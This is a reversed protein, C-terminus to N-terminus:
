CNRLVDAFEKPYNNSVLQADIVTKARPKKYFNCLESKFINWHEDGLIGAQNSVFQESYLSVVKTVFLHELLKIKPLGYVTAATDPTREVQSIFSRAQQLANATAGAEIIGRTLWFQWAAFVFAVMSVISSIAGITDKNRSFWNNPATNMAIETGNTLRDTPEISMWFVLWGIGIVAFLGIPGHDGLFKLIAIIKGVFDVVRDGFLIQLIIGFCIFRLGLKVISVILKKPLM